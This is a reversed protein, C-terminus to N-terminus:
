MKGMLLNVSLAGTEPTCYFLCNEAAISTM